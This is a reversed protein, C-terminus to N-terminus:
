RMYGLPWGDPKDDKWQCDPKHVLPPKGDLRFAGCGPCENPQMTKRKEVAGEEIADLKRRIEEFDAM